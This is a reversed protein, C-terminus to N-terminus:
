RTGNLMVFGVTNYPCVQSRVSFINYQPILWVAEHEAVAGYLENLVDHQDLDRGGSLSLPKHFSPLFRSTNARFSACRDEGVADAWATEVVISSYSEGRPFATM